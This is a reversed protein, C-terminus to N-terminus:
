GDEAARPERGDRLQLQGVVGMGYVGDLPLRERQAREVAEVRARMELTPSEVTRFARAAPLVGALELPARILKRILYPNMLYPLSGQAALPFLWFYAVLASGGSRGSRCWTLCVALVGLVAAEVHSSKMRRLLEGLSVRDLDDTATAAFSLRWQFLYACLGRVIGLGYGAFCPGSVLVAALARAWGLLGRWAKGQTMRGLNGRRRVRWFLVLFLILFIGSSLVVRAFARRFPTLGLGLALAAPLISAINIMSLFFGILDVIHYWGVHPSAAFRRFSKKVVGLREWDGAPNLIAEAAGFAYRRFKEVEESYTRTVAEGFELGPFAVYKGHLGIIHVRMMFDLDECTMEGWLGIGLLVSKRLFLNHGMVPVQSGDFQCHSPIAIDYLGRTFAGIIMSFYNDTENTPYSAHQTYALNPDEVFEPVTALIVDPHCISDKDLQLIIEGLEVHGGWEAFRFPSLASPLPTGQSRPADPIDALEHQSLKALAAELLFAHNLNSAKKFRGRRETEPVGPIPKARAVWCVEHRAYYELRALVEREGDTRRAAAKRRARACFGALDNDAFHLLGDDCVVLNARQGTAERFRRIAECASDLTPAIVDTFPETYIPVQVTVTPWAAISAYNLPLNTYRASRQRKDGRLVRYCTLLTWITSVSYEVPFILFVFGFPVTGWSTWLNGEEFYVRDAESLAFVAALTVSILAWRRLMHSHQRRSEAVDLDDQPLQAITARAENM